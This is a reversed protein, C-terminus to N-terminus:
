KFRKKHNRHKRRSKRADAAKQLSRKGGAFFVYPISYKKRFISTVSGHEKTEYETPIVDM